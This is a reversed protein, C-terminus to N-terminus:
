LKSSPLKQMLLVELHRKEQELAEIRQMLIPVQQRLSKNEDRIRQMEEDQGKRYGTRAAYM